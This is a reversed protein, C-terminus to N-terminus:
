APIRGIIGSSAQITGIKQIARFGSHSPHIAVPMGSWRLPKRSGSRATKSPM